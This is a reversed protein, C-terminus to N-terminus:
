LAPEPTVIHFDQHSVRASPRQTVPPHGPTPSPSTRGEGEAEAQISCRSSLSEISVSASSRKLRHRARPLRPPIFQHSRGLLQNSAPRLSGRTASTSAAFASARQAPRGVFPSLPTSAAWQASTALGSRLSATPRASRRGRRRLSHLTFGLPEVLDLLRLRACRRRRLNTVISSRPSVIWQSPLMSPELSSSGRYGPGPSPGCGRPPPATATTVRPM